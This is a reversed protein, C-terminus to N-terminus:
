RKFEIRKKAKSNNILKKNNIKRQVENSEPINEGEKEAVQNLFAETGNDHTNKIMDLCAQDIAVPDTSAM